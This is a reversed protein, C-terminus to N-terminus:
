SIIEDIYEDEVRCAPQELFDIFLSPGNVM